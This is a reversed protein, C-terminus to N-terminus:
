YTTLSSPALTSNLSLYGCWRECFHLSYSMVQHFEKPTAPALRSRAPLARVPCIALNTAARSKVLGTGGCSITEPGLEATVISFFAVFRSLSYFLDIQIYCLSPPQIPRHSLSSLYQHLTINYPVTLCVNKSPVRASSPSRM